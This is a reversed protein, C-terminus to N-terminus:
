YPLPVRLVKLYDVLLYYRLCYSLWTHYSMIEVERNVYQIGLQRQARAEEQSIMM